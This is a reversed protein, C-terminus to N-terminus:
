AAGRRTPVWPRAAGRRAPVRPRAAGRRAPVMPQAAAPKTSPSGSQGRRRVGACMSMSTGTRGRSRRHEEENDAAGPSLVRAATVQQAVEERPKEGPESPCSVRAAPDARQEPGRRGRERWGRGTPLDTRRAV